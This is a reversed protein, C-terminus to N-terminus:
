HKDLAWPSKKGNVHAKAKTTEHQQVQEAAPMTCYATMLVGMSWLVAKWRSAFVTNLKPGIFM